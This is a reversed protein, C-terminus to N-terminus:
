AQQYAAEYQRRDIEYLKQGKRVHQGDKFFIGTIMGTVQGRLEVQNLATITGPYQDYFIAEEKKVVYVKVLQPGQMKGKEGGQQGASKDKADGNKNKNCSMIFAIVLLAIVFFIKKTTDINIQM